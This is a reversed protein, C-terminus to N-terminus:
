QYTISFCWTSHRIRGFQEESGMSGVYLTRATRCPAKLEFFSMSTDDHGNDDIMFGQSLSIVFAPGFMFSQSAFACQPIDVAVVSNKRDYVASM